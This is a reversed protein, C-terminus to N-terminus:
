KDTWQALEITRSNFVIHLWARHMDLAISELDKRERRAYQIYTDM